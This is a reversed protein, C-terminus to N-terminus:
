KKWGQEKKLKIYINETKCMEKHFDLKEKVVLRGNQGFEKRLNKDKLLIIIHKALSEPDKLPIVFGNKGDKVWDSNEGFDTVIVPLECAMAEATSAALGADSLSTSVYVDSSTLYFPLKDNPIFGVFRVSDEVGFFRVKNKLIEEQTGKGAIIFKVEPMVKLVLPIADVLTEVDYLSNLNRLSIVIPNDSLGLEKRITIDKQYPSFKNADTGFYVISIKSADADLNVMSEKLHHADCTIADANGLAHKVAYRKTKSLPDILIDSGWATLVFPHFGSFDAFTGTGFVYFAHVIDPNIEKILKRTQVIKRIFNFFSGNENKGIPYTKAGKIKNHTPTIVYVDHKRSVFWKIWRVSHISETGAVFCIKM